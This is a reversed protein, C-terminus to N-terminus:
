LTAEDFENFKLSCGQVFIYVKLYLKSDFKLIEKM